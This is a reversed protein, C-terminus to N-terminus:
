IRSEIKNLLRAYDQPLIRHFWNWLYEKRHSDYQAKKAKTAAGGLRLTPGRVDKDDDGVVHSIAINTDVSALVDRGWVNISQGFTSDAKGVSIDTARVATGSFCSQYRTTIGLPEAMLEIKISRRGGTMEAQRETFGCHCITQLSGTIGRRQKAFPM